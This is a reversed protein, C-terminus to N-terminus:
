YSSGEKDSARQRLIRVLDGNKDAWSVTNDDKTTITVIDFTMEYRVEWTRIDSIRVSITRGGMQRILIGNECRYVDVGLVRELMNQLGWGIARPLALIGDILSRRM